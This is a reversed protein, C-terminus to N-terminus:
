KPDMQESVASAKYPLMLLDPPLEELSSWQCSTEISRSHTTETAENM